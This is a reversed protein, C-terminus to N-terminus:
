CGHCSAELEPLPLPREDQIDSFAAFQRLSHDHARESAGKGDFRWPPNVL